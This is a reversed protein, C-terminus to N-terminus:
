DVAEVLDLVLRAIDKITNYGRPFEHGQSHYYEKALRANCLELLGLGFQRPEELDRIHLTPISICQPEFNMVCLKGDSLLPTGDDLTKATLTQKFFEEDMMKQKIIQTSLEPSVKMRFDSILSLYTTVEEILEVNQRTPEDILRHGKIDLIRGPTVANCFIAFRFLPHLDQRSKRQEEHRLFVQAALAAGSSYALVGDFPDEEELLLDLLDKQADLSSKLDLM